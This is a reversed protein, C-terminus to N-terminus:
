YFVTDRTAHREFARYDGVKGLAWLVEDLDADRISALQARRDEAVDSATAAAHMANVIRESAVIAAARLETEEPGAPLPQREDIVKAVEPSVVLVGLKRLVAPLVNDSMVTLDAIDTFDFLTPASKQLALHNHWACLQAKKAVWVERGRVIHVDRFPPFATVLLEVFSAARYHAM